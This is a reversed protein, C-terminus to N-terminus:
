CPQKALQTLGQSFSFIPKAKFCLSNSIPSDVFLHYVHELEIVPTPSEIFRPFQLNYKRISKAMSVLADMEALLELLEKIQDKLQIRFLADYEIIALFDLKDQKSKAL